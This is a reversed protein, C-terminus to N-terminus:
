AFRLQTACPCVTTFPSVGGGCKPCIWGIPESQKSKFFSSCRCYKDGTGELPLGPHKGGCTPCVKMDMGFAVKKNSIGKKM